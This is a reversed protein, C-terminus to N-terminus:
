DRWTTPEDVRHLAAPYTYTALSAQQKNQFTPTCVSPLLRFFVVKSLVNESYVRPNSHESNHVDDELFDGAIREM